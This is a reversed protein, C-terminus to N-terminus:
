NTFSITRSCDKNVLQVLKDRNSNLQILKTQKMDEISQRITDRTAFLGIEVKIASLVNKLRYYNANTAYLTDNGPYLESSLGQRM